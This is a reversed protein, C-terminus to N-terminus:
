VLVGSLTTDSYTYLQQGTSPDTWTGRATMIISALIKYHFKSKVVVFNRRTVACFGVSVASILPCLSPKAATRASTCCCAVFVGVCALPCFNAASLRCSHYVPVASCKSRTVASSQPDPALKSKGRPLRRLLGCDDATVRDM